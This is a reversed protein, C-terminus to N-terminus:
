YAFQMICHLCVYYNNFYASILNLHKCSEQGETATVTMMNISSGNDHDKDEFCNELFNEDIFHIIRTIFTEFSVLLGTCGYYPMLSYVNLYNGLEVLLSHGKRKVRCSCQIFAAPPM